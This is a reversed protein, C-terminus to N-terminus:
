IEEVLGFLFKWYRFKYCITLKKAIESQSFLRHFNKIQFLLKANIESKKFKIKCFNLNLRNLSPLRGFDFIKFNPYGSYKVLYLWVSYVTKWRRDSEVLGAYHAGHKNRDTPRHLVLIVKWASQTNRLLNQDAAWVDFQTAYPSIWSLLYISNRFIQDFPKNSQQKSYSCFKELILIRSFNGGKMVSLLRM